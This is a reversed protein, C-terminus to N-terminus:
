GQEDVRPIPAQHPDREPHQTSEALEERLAPDTVHELVEASYHLDAPAQAEQDLYTEWLRHSRVLEAANRRGAPTLQLGDASTALKGRRRLREIALRVLLGRHAIAERLAAAGVASGRGAEEHRYLYGLVDERATDVALRLRRVARSLLGHEPAALLAASFFIGAAVAMMGATNTDVGELGFWGPAVLASWHGLLATAAALVVSVLLMVSLRRTLLFATAPPVILMAIVLISGVSEFAAVATAAVLTMLLYHMFEANIGLTTALGPDFSSLKLEKYLLLVLALDILFVGGTTLVARPLSFGGWTVRDLPILSLQGHLVCEPDLDVHHAAQRILILGIAFLITFVVGMSAGHEVKGASQVWQTLAATLVGIVMAGVLMAFSGRSGTIIFALALGPLVAHSIADGMMSMRRLVLFTGLLACAMASLAAVVVIETDFQVWQIGLLLAFM